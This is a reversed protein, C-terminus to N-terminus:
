IDNKTQTRVIKMIGGYSAIMCRLLKPLFFISIHNLDSKPKNNTESLTKRLKKLCNQIKKKYMFSTKNEYFITM